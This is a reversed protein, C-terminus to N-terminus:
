QGGAPKSFVFENCGSDGGETRLRALVLGRRRFFDFIQEPKAVEFPYGGTWDVVDYWASMGRARGANCWTEFPRLHVLDKVWRKWWTSICVGLALLFQVPKGSRNYLAKIRTWRRSAKGQDNYIAIFLAGGRRVLGEVKELATWMAGTHHLVGWSYVVDFEGLSALYGADLASGQEVSWDPDEPFYRRKLEATCAVSQPDYDFSHVKAGLRRAALSFLGSGSGVDLFTKGALSDSLMAGLSIEAQRVREENILRLFRSWNEGFRFRDGGAIKHTGFGAGRLPFGWVTASQM